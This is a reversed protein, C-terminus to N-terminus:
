SRRVATAYTAADLGYGWAAASLPDPIDAPVTLGFKRRTGDREPIGNTVIMVRVDADGYIREPVDYLAIEHGPNGPDPCTDGVQALGADAVFRDWGLREIACRRVEANEERLIRTTDWGTEILDQPVRTGHWSWLGYGDAYALAPGTECHLRAQGDRAIATPRDTLIAIGHHPWWWGM